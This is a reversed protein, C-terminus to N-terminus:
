GSGPAPTWGRSACWSRCARGPTRCTSSAATTGPRTRRRSSRRISRFRTPSTSTSPDVTAACSGTRPSPCPMGPTTTSSRTRFDTRGPECRRRSGSRGSGTSTSGRRMPNWFRARRRGGAAPRSTRSTAYPCALTRRVAESSARSRVISPKKRSSAKAVARTRCSHSGSSGPPRHTRREETVVEGVGVQAALDVVAELDHLGPVGGVVVQEVALVAVQGAGVLLGLLDGHGGPTTGPRSSRQGSPEFHGAELDAVRRPGPRVTGHCCEYRGEGYVVMSSALVLRRVGSGAMGALLVATGLDNRSVYDPADTLGKGLGVMAAQHCVADAGRLDHGAAISATVIHSGIFGAGGTVLIM